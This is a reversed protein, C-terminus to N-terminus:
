PTGGLTDSLIKFPNWSQPTGKNNHKPMLTERVDPRKQLLRLLADEETSREGAQMTQLARLREIPPAQFFQNVPQGALSLEDKEDQSYM